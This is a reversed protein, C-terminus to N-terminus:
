QIKTPEEVHSARGALRSLEVRNSTGTKRLLNSVHSSVTKESIVLDRAIERYTRGSVVHALIERERKTLGPLGTPPDSTSPSVPVDAVPIRASSALARLEGLIPVAGLDEALTIGRRLVSAALTRDPHAQALLTEAARWCAYAEEWALMATHSADAARLWQVGADSGQHAREIEADYLSDLADRKRESNALGYEGIDRIVTPYRVTLEDLRRLLDSPIIHSDRAAQIQDALARAALPMLWECMTPPLGTSSTGAMAADYAAEPDGAALHVEARIADFPFPLFQSSESFIEDARELHAVAEHSRGQWAALRAATLRSHVDALPGPDFGLLYRLLRQVQRWQGIAMRSHAEEAAFYAIYPHPAGLAELEHRRVQRLDAFFRTEVIDQANAGWVAAYRYAWYDHAVLSTELAESAFVLAEEGREAAVAVMAEASLAYSLARPDGAARAVALARDAMAAADPGDRWVEARALEALAFAHQWSTPEGAALRVAELLDEGWLFGGTAFRLHTRRVLLESALLPEISPDTIDLLLDVARLEEEHAGTEAAVAILRKVLDQETEAAHSVDARLEVARRLLRLMETVGGAARAAESSTLAWRYAEDLHGARHHHDAVAVMSEVTASAVDKMAKEDHDAFAAHWRRREDDTLRRELVEAILPHHFWYTGDAAVDLNGAHVAEELLPQIDDVGLATSAVDALDQVRRPGGGVALIRTVERTEDPLRWWSRLVASTLDAPLDRSLFRANPPLGDVVLRTLYANGRTHAFVDDLLSQHPPSGVLAAIQEGTAARNLPGLTMQEVRPLRLIDALWRQLPHGDGVEEGRIAGIVALRRDAPGAMLYMLVDLTSQDAWQLDDIALIVLRRHCIDDLWADFAIPVSAPSDGPQVTWPFRIGERRSAHTASRLALFPVTMSTLPLCAGALTLASRDARKCAQQVLATKGVGADGSILFSVADGSSARELVAGVVGLETQRGVLASEIVGPRATM